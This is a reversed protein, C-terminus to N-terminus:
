EPIGLGTHCDTCTAETLDGMDLPHVFDSGEIRAMASGETQSAVTHCTQCDKPIARGDDSKLSGGHCRFCGASYFHGINDPYAEWSAKMEPFFNTRYLLQVESIAAALEKAKTENVEPYTSTYYARIERAIVEQGDQSSSYPRGLLAISEKKIFPLSADIRGSRLSANLAQDPTTFRHGARNHCDVCDMTRRPAGSIQEPTIDPDETRYETVKGDPNTVKVWPISQFSDDLYAFEIRKSQHAHIGQDRAGVNLVMNIQRPTNAEDTSYHPFTKLKQISASHAGSHCSDCTGSSHPLSQLPSPIPRDFTDTMAAWMRHVGSTKAEVYGSAGPGVHCAVCTIAAHPSEGFATHEPSMSTHCAAGCFSVSESVEYAHYSGVASLPVFFALFGCVAMFWTRASAQNFDWVPLPKLDAAGGARRKARERAMGVAVIVGGFAMIAPFVVWAFIGWYPNSRESFHDFLAFFLIGAAGFAAIAAGAWSIRNHFLSRV